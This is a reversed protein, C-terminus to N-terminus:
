DIKRYLFFAEAFKKNIESGRLRALSEITEVSRPQPSKQIETKYMKMAKIKFSLFNSIDYYYNPQFTRKISWETSSLTEFFLIKKLLKNKLPRCATITSYSVIQHDINLDEFYHTFVMEPKYIKLINEIKQIIFLRPYSDLQNDKLEFFIIKKTGLIKNSKICDQKLLNIKENKNKLNRSTIGTTFFVVIVNFKKSLKKITGGCGLLEDDPHAAFVLINKKKM